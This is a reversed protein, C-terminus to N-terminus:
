LFAPGQKKCIERSIEVEKRLSHFDNLERWTQKANSLDFRLINKVIRKRLSFSIAKSNFPQSIDTWNVLQLRQNIVKEKFSNDKHERDHYIETIPCIGIKLGHSYVRNAYDRDEGYHFFLPNFGGVTEITKRPILWAAANIFDAPYLPKFARGLFADSYLNPCHKPIIFNSFNWDLRSGDGNLHLPSIIGYEPEEKAVNVLRSLTGKKIWADQNLLFIFEAKAELAKKIGINNAQGFGLNKSSQLLIVKPFKEKIKKLTGDSSGNDIVVVHHNDLNEEELSGLCKEIWQIGNYTVVVSFVKNDTM